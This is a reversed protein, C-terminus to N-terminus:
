HNSEHWVCLQEAEKYVDDSNPVYDEIDVFVPDKGLTQRIKRKNQICWTKALLMVAEHDNGTLDVNFVEKLVRFEPYSPNELDFDTVHFGWGPSRQAILDTANQSNMLFVESSSNTIIDSVSQIKM